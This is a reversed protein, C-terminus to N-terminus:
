HWFVKWFVKFSDINQWIFFMIEWEFHLHKGKNNNQEEFNGAFSIIDKGLTYLPSLVIVVM